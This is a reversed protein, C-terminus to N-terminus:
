GFPNKLNGTKKPPHPSMIGHWRTILKWRKPGVVIDLLL